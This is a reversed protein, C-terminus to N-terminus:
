RNISTSLDPHLLLSTRLLAIKGPMMLGQNTAGPGSKTVPEEM